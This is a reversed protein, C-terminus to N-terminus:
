RIRLPTKDVFLSYFLFALGITTFISQLTVSMQFDLGTLWDAGGGFLLGVSIIGFGIVLARMPASKDRRYARYAFYAIAGSFALSAAHSATLLAANVDGVM